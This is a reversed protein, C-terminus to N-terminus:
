KRGKKELFAETYERELATTILSQKDEGKLHPFLHNLQLMLERKVFARLDFSKSNKQQKLKGNVRDEKHHWAELDCFKHLVSVPCSPIPQPLILQLFKGYM